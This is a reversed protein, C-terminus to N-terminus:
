GNNKERIEQRQLYEIETAIDESTIDVQEELHHQIYDLIQKRAYDRGAYYGKTYESDTM